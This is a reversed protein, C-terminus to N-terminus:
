QGTALLKARDPDLARIYDLPHEAFRLAAARPRADGEADLAWQAHECLYSLELSRGVTLAYARAGSELIEPGENWANALWQNAREASRRALELAKTLETESVATAAASLESALAARTEPTNLARLTDLSLVNTTGEWISLVQTDRLLVPIGTDEVYGAGGFCELQESAIRVAQRATTLKMLPTLVRLLHAIEPGQEGAEMRGILDVVRFAFHLAADTEAQLGALTDVHLPKEALPAGFARRKRAYDRALAMGRRMNGAATVGNWTRTINLMPTIQRVGHGPEGVLWARLGELSLEATPLKKTGLKDKLRNVRIEPLRGGPGETEVYFMALGRSGAAAGEPRALTLAM